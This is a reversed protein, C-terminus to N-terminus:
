HEGYSDVTALYPGYHETLRVIRAWEALTSGIDAM